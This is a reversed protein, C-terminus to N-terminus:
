RQERDNGTQGSPQGSGTYDGAPGHNTWSGDDNEGWVNGEPSIKTSDTPGAGIGEKIDQHDGSWPTDEIKRSGAPPKKRTEGEKEKSAMCNGGCNLQDGLGLKNDIWNGLNGGVAAGVKRGVFGGAIGGVM